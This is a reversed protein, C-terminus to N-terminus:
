QVAGRKIAYSAAVMLGVGLTTLWWNGVGQHEFVYVAVIRMLSNGISFVIWAIFWSPAGRWAEYLGWQAVIIFPATRLLTAPYSGYDGYRNTYEVVMICANSVLSAVWFPM